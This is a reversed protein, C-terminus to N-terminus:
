QRYNGDDTSHQRIINIKHRGLGKFNPVVKDSDLLLWWRQDAAVLDPFDHITMACRHFSLRMLHPCRRVLRRIAAATLAPNGAVNVVTLVDSMADLTADTLMVRQLTLKTLHPHTQLFAEIGQYNSHCSGRITMSTLHPWLPPPPRTVAGQQRTKDLVRPVWSATGRLGLHTGHKYLEESRNNFLVFSLPCHTLAAAFLDNIYVHSCHVLTLHALSCCYRGLEVVSLRTISAHRLYFLKLHPYHRPMLQLSADTIYRGNRIILEELQTGVYYMVDLLDSDDFEVHFQVSLLHQGLHQQQHRYQYSQHLDLLFPFFTDHQLVRCQTRWRQLMPQVAMHMTRNIMAIEYLDHRDVQPFVLYLIELPLQNFSTM